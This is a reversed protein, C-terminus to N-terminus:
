DLTLYSKSDDYSLKEFIANCLDSFLIRKVQSGDSIFVYYSDPIITSAAVTNIDRSGALSGDIENIFRANGTFTADGATLDETQISDAILTDYRADAM